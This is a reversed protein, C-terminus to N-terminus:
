KPFAEWSLDVEVRTTQGSTITVKRQFRKYDPHSFAVTYEGGALELPRFPTTGVARGDVTVDAWPRVVIQLRGPEPEVAAPTAPRPVPTPAAPVVGPPSASPQLAAPRPTSAPPTGAQRPSPRTAAPPRVPTEPPLSAPTAPALSPSTEAPVPAVTTSPALSPLTTVDGDPRTGVAAWALVLAAGGGLAAGWWAARVRRGGPRVADGPATPV